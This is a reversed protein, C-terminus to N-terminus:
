EKTLADEICDLCSYITDNAIDAAVWAVNWRVVDKAQATLQNYSEPFLVERGMAGYMENFAWRGAETWKRWAKVPVKYINQVKNQNKNTKKM